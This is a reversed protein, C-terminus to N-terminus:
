VPLSMNEGAIVGPGNESGDGNGNSGNGSGIIKTCVIGWKVIYSHAKAAVISNRHVTTPYRCVSHKTDLLTEIVPRDGGNASFM